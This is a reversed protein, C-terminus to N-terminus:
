LCLTSIQCKQNLLSHDGNLSFVELHIMIHTMFIMLVETQRTRLIDKIRHNDSDMQM